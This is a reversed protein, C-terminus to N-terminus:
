GNRSVEQHLYRELAVRWHPMQVGLARSRTLDLIGYRPRPAPRPFAESAVPQVPVQPNLGLAAGSRVIEHALDFWSATGECALHLTGRFETALLSVLGAALADTSTPRGLQDEVVRLERGERAADLITRVFNRGEGFLWQTRVIVHNPTTERVTAEGAAKSEGYVSRPDATTEEPVPVHADGSFVYETSLHVLRAGAPLQSALVGPARANVAWARERESECLDVQTFAGANIVVQPAVERLLKRVAAEDCVDLEAHSCGVWTVDQPLGEVALLSRGLQGSAGTILWRAESM